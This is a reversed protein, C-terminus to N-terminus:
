VCEIGALREPIVAAPNMANGGYMSLLGTLAIMRNQANDPIQPNGLRGDPLRSNEALRMLANIPEQIMGPM